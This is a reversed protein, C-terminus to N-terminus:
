ALTLWVNFVVLVLLTTVIPKRWRSKALGRVVFLAPLLFLLPFEIIMYRSSFNNFSLIFLLLPLFFLLGIFVEAPATAFAARPSRWHDRLIRVFTALFCGVM